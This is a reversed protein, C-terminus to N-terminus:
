RNFIRTLFKKFSGPKTKNDDNKIETAEQVVPDSEAERESEEIETAELAVPGSEADRECEGIVATEHPLSNGDGEGKYVTKDIGDYEGHGYMNSHDDSDLDSAVSITDSERYNNESKGISGSIKKRTSSGICVPSDELENDSVKMGGNKNPAEKLIESDGGHLSLSPAKKDVVNLLHHTNSTGNTKNEVTNNSDGVELNTEPNEEKQLVPSSKNLDSSSATHSSPNIPSQKTIEKKEVVPTESVPSTTKSNSRAFFIFGALTCIITLISLTVVVTIFTKPTKKNTM